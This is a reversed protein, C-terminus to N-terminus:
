RNREKMEIEIGVAGNRSSVVGEVQVVPLAADGSQM